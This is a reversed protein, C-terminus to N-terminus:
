IDAADGFNLSLGFTLLKDRILNQEKGPKKIFGDTNVSERFLLSRVARNRCIGEIKELNKAFNSDYM